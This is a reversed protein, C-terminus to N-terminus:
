DSQNRDRAGTSEGKAEAKPSVKRIEDHISSEGISDNKSITSDLNNNGTTTMNPPQLASNENSITFTITEDKEGSIPQKQTSYSEEESYVSRVEEYEKIIMANYHDLKANITFIGFAPKPLVILVPKSKKKKPKQPAPANEANTPLEQQKSQDQQKSRDPHERREPQELQKM